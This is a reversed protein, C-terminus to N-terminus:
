PPAFPVVTSHVEAPLKHNLATLEARLASVRAAKPVIVLRNCINELNLLFQVQATDSHPAIDLCRRVESLYYHGRLLQIQSQTDYRELLSDARTMYIARVPTRPSALSPSSHSPSPADYDAQGLPDDSITPKRIQRQLHLPLAPLTQAGVPGPKKSLRVSSQAPLVEEKDGLSGSAPSDVEDGDADDDSNEASVRVPADEPQREWPRGGDGEEARGQEIAVEGTVATLLPLGPAGALMMGIGALVPEIHHNIKKRRNWAPLKSGAYPSTSPLLQDGFIIEHCKLLTRQCVAFSRSDRRSSVDNLSAQMFWLTQIARNDSRQRPAETSTRALCYPDVEASHRYRLMGVGAVEGTSKHASPQLSQAFDASILNRM